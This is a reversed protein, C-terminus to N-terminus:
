GRELLTEVPTGTLHYFHRRRDGGLVLCDAIRYGQSFYHRLIRRIGERWRLAEQRHTRRLTDFNDPIEVLLDNEKCDTQYAELRRWSEGSGEEEIRTVQPVPPLAELPGAPARLRALVRPSNIYWDVWLRDSGTGASFRDLLGGYFDPVYVQALAGLKRMNLNANASLLPDFTWRVLDLERHLSFDRQYLKLHYGISLHRHGPIIGVLQSHLYHRDVKPDMGLWAVSFGVAKEELVALAVLGGSEALAFLARAPYPDDGGRRGYGWIEKQLDVVREFQDTNSLAQIQLRGSPTEIWREPNWDSSSM